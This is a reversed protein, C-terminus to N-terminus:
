KINLKEVNCKYPAFVAQIDEASDTKDLFLFHATAGSNRYYVAIPTGNEFVYLFIKEQDLVIDDTGTSFFAMSYAAAEPGGYKVNIQSILSAISVRYRMQEKLSESLEKWAKSETNLFLRM